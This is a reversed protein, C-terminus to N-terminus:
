TRACRRSAVLARAAPAQRYHLALTAGKDELFLGDHRAAFHSLVGRLRDLATLPPLHRHLTGDASRRELGHQGAIPLASARFCATPTPWRADPSSRSRVAWAPARTGAVAGHHRRRRARRGPTPALELLTGDIDLFLACDRTLAPPARPARRVSPQARDCAADTRGTEAM